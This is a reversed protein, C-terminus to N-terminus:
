KRRVGNADLEPGRKPPLVLVQGVRLDVRPELVPIAVGEVPAEAPVEVCM